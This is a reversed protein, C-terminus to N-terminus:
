SRASSARSIRFGTFLAAFSVFGLSSGRWKIKAHQGDRQADAHHSRVPVILLSSVSSPRGGIGHAIPGYALRCRRGLEYRSDRLAAWHGFGRIRYLRPPMFSSESVRAALVANLM